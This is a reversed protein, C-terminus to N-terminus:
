KCVYVYMCVYMCAYVCLCGALLGVGVQSREEDACLRSLLQADHSIVVVGGQFEELADCLADISQAPHAAIPAMLVCITPALRPPCCHPGM